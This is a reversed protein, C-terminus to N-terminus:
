RLLRTQLARRERATGDPHEALQERLGRLRRGPAHRAAQGDDEHGGRDGEPDQHHQRADRARIGAM